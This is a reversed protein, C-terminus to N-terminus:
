ARRKSSPLPSQKSIFRGHSALYLFPSLGRAIMDANVFEECRVENLLYEMAFTTKGSGNSGAIINVVPHKSKKKTSPM